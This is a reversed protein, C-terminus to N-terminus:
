DFALNEVFRGLNDLDEHVDDDLLPEDDDTETYGDDDGLVGDSPNVSFSGTYGSLREIQRIRSLHASNAHRRRQYRDELESTLATDFVGISNIADHWAKEETHISTRLRQIEIDLRKIEAKAQKIKHYKNAVERNAPNVWPEASIDKQSHASKLLEFESIFGYDVVHRWELHPAPPQMKSAQENYQSIAARIAKSRAKLAKWIHTRM